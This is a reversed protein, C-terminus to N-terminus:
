RKHWPAKKLGSAAYGNDFYLADKQSDSIPLSNILALIEKKKSGSDTKGDGDADVGTCETRKSRYDAFVNPQIGTEEISKGLEDLKKTYALVQESSLDSDPHQKQWRYANVTEEAEEADKGGYRVLANKLQQETIEGDIYAEKVESYNVDLDKKCGWERVTKKAANESKGGYRVLMQAAKSETLSNNLYSDRIEDYEIGTDRVSNWQTVQEEADKKRMGLVGNLQKIAATRDIEGNLYQEKVSEKSGGPVKKLQKEFASQIQKRSFNGEAEIEALIREAAKANGAAKEKAAQRIRSDQDALATVVANEYKQETSYTTKLREQEAQSGTVIAHYLRETKGNSGRFIAPINEQIGDWIAKGKTYSDSARPTSVTEYTNKVGRLERLINKLPIGGMNLLGAAADLSAIGFKGLNEKKAEEDEPDTELFKKWSDTAKQTANYMDSVLSMDNREVDYGQVISWVDKFGPYYTIPNVGDVLESALSSLYKELYTKEEDDDRAAYVLSALLSNLILAAAVSSIKKGATKFNKGRIDQVASGMMNITTTPEAMFSTLMKMYVSKSRMNGSRSFVSDYVQTQTICKTFLKGAEAKLAEGSLGPHEAKTQRKAAEWMAVWTIKDMQEPMWGGFKDVAAMFGKGNEGSLLEQTSRGMDTDFRGIEKLGVVPAYKKMEEWTASIGGASDVKSGAFYKADIISFARGVASPQQIAVSLSASVAAKKFGSLFMNYVTERNDARVGGNVDKLFTDVYDVSAEGHKRLMQQRIGDGSTNYNYVRYFDEMPLTFNHYMATDNVHNAWTEMFGRLEVANSANKDTPKMHGANKQRNGPSEQSDRVRESRIASSKIPWYDKEKAKSVGYLARSVENNQEACVTSLYEQMENAFAIQEATLGLVQGNRIQIVTELALVHSSYDTYDKGNRKSGTLIFGGETLHKLYQERKSAAFLSMREQLDLAVKEGDAMEVEVLNNEWQDFHYKDMCGLMIARAKAFDRYWGDEGNRLNEYLQMMVGSGMRELAYYPKENNWSLKEMTKKLKGLAPTKDPQKQFEAMAQKATEAWGQKLNEGHLKNANRITNLIATYANRVAQLQQINLEGYFSDGIAEKADSIFELIKNNYEQTFVGKNVEAFDSYAQQLRELANQVTANRRELVNQLKAETEAIAQANKVPDKGLRELQAGYRAIVRRATEQADQQKITAISQMAMTVAPQLSDPVYLTKTPNLLRRNLDTLVRELKFREETKKASEVKAKAAEQQAQVKKELRDINRGSTDYERLLRKFERQWIATDEETKSLEEKIKELSNDQEGYKRLLRIIEKGMAAIKGTYSDELKNMERQHATAIQEREAEYVAKMAKAEADRQYRYDSLAQEVAKKGDQRAQAAEQLAANREKKLKAIEEKLKDSISEVPKADWAMAVIKEILDKREADRYYAAEMDSTSRSDKLKQVLEALAGPMNMDSLESDFQDAFQAAAEQWFQDLSTNANQDIIISGRIAKQFDKVSGYSYEIEGIQGESLRVRRKAMWDLVEQAYEDRQEKRHEELWDAAKGAREEIGDWSVDADRSIYNYTDELLAALETTSGNANGERILRAALQNLSNRDLTYDKNGRKQIQVLKKLYQIETEMREMQEEASIRRSFRINDMQNIMQQRQDENGAEYLQYPIGLKSLEELLRQSATDPVIVNKIEDFGVARAPKAEFINVPMQSIDSLFQAVEQATQSNVEMNYKAFIRQVNEPTYGRSEGIESIIEGISDMRILENDSWRSKANAEDITGMLKYLRNGLDDQINSVQEDTLNQLRGELKHMDAISKFRESTAARLTKVGFFGSVNKTNGGNESRMAKVIGELTAAIHTEKFSRRGGSPTYREKGNYVGKSKEVGSFLKKVWEAFADKDIASDVNKKMTEADVTTYTETTNATGNLYSSLRRLVGSMRVANKTMGPYARELEAGHEERLTKLPIHEFVEPKVNGLVDWVNLLKDETENNIANVIREEQRTEQEIHKGQEELFAAKLAYNNLLSDVVGKEGGERNLRDEIDYRVVDLDHQFYEAVKGKLEGLRNYVRDTAKGDAEYEIRPVVPTWADASYVANYRSVKPDITEKGFVVTIDGFNTHPIGAKTIAISPMPFGGLELTKLFKEETLNHLAVLTKTKQENRSSKLIGEPANNKQGDLRGSERIKVGAKELEVLLKPPVVNDPVAIDTGGLLQKYMQAVERDPIIRVPMIWRSLLVKREMGTQQRLAGAVTGTHWSHWGVSDKAYQAKYGSTLESVPVKCEVTVLNPRTYAGSFQDNLVLNSSHMYPNYAAALSGQGKGKNLTFKPKGNKDFKILEPHETAAEWKGLESYDEYSGAVVTAMPPYLKGDVLQMTKYTTVTEQSNLFDITDKDTVRESHLYEVSNGDNGIVTGASVNEGDQLQYNVVADSAADAFANLADESSRITDRALQAISSDPNLGRYAEKLREVLGQLFKKIKEWLSMDTQKLRASIREMVDTDTLATEMMEAVVESYAVDNLEEASLEKYGQRKLAAAKAAILENVNVDTGVAEFLIETFRHFKEPSFEEVFHTFEHSLAFAMVGQGDAGANLDVWISGDELYISGNEMGANREEETSAYVTINLGMESLLRAADMGSKQQANLSEINKASDKVTLSGKQAAHEGRDITKQKQRNKARKSDRGAEWATQRTAEDLRMANSDRGIANMAVGNRGANYADLVAVAFNSNSLQSNKSAELITNGTQADVGMTEIAKFLRATGYSGFKVDKANVQKGEDTLLVMGGGGTSAIESINVPSSDSILYSQGEAEGDYDFSSGDVSQKGLNYALDVQGVTLSSIGEIDAIDIGEQGAKYAKAMEEVYRGRSQGPYYMQEIAFAHEKGFISEAAESLQDHVAAKASKETETERTGFIEPALTYTGINRVWDSGGSESGARSIDNLLTDTIKQNQAMAYRESMTLKEGTLKKVIGSAILGPNKEAGLQEAQAAIAETLNSVDQKTLAAINEQYINTLKAYDSGRKGLEGKEAKAQLKPVDKNKSGLEAANKLIEDYSGSDVMDKGIKRADSTTANVIGGAGGMLGGSVAGGYFSWFTDIAQNIFAQKQAEERSMGGQEVLAQINNRYDSNKGELLADVVLNALDSAVEESGENLAQILTKKAWDRFGTVNGELFHSTFYEISYKETAAEILGSAIAGLGIQTGSAGKEYLEQARQSAASSGMIWTYGNGFLTAGLASDAGSMVAQYTNAAVAGWFPSDISDVIEQATIGRVTNAYDSLEHGASYPNFKGTIASSVDAVASSVGGFINAPVTAANMVTKGIAGSTGYTIETNYNKFDSIRKDLTVELDSLYQKAEGLGYRNLLFYYMKLENDALWNYRSISTGSLAAQADYETKNALYRSVPDNREDLGKEMGAEADEQFGDMYRYTEYQQVKDEQKAILGNRESADADNKLNYYAAKAADYNKKARNYAASYQTIDEGTSNAMNNQANELQQQAQTFALYAEEIKQQKEEEVANQAEGTSDAKTAEKKTQKAADDLQRKAAELNKEAELYRAEVGDFDGDPVNYYDNEATKFADEAAAYAAKARALPSSYDTASIEPVNGPLQSGLAQYQETFREWRAKADAYDRSDPQYRKQADEWYKREKESQQLLKAADTRLKITESNEKAGTADQNAYKKPELLPRKPKEAQSGKLLTDIQSIRTSNQKWLPDKSSLWKNENELQSKEDQLLLADKYSKLQGLYDNIRQNVQPTSGASFQAATSPRSRARLQEAYADDMSKLKSVAARDLTNAVFQKAQNYRESGGSTTPKALQQAVFEEANKKRSM